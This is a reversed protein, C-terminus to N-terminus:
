SGTYFVNKNESDWEVSLVHEDGPFSKLSDNLASWIITQGDYGPAALQLGDASFALASPPRKRRTLEMLKTGDSTRWVEVINDITSAVLDGDGTAAYPGRVGRYPIKRADVTETGWDRPPQDEFFLVRCDSTIGVKGQVTQREPELQITNGSLSGSLRIVTEDNM